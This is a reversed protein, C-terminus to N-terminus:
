MNVFATLSLSFIGPNATLRNPNEDQSQWSLAAYNQYTEFEGSEKRVSSLRWLGKQELIEYYLHNLSDQNTAIVRTVLIMTYSAM